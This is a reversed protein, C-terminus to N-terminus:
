VLVQIQLAAREIMRTRSAELKSRLFLATSYLAWTNPKELIKSLYAMCKEDIIESKAHFTLLHNVQALLIALEENSLDKCKSEEVLNARELLVDDNHLLDVPMDTTAASTSIPRTSSSQVVLQSTDFTQFKTRRGLVGTLSYELGLVEAARKLWAGARPEDEYFQFVLAAETLSSPGFEKVLQDVPTEEIIKYIQTKLSEAPNEFLRQQLFLARMRWWSGEEFTKLCDLLVKPNRVLRYPYEGDVELMKLAEENDDSAATYPGTWNNQIFDLLMGEMM